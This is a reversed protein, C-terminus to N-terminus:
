SWFFAIDALSRVSAAFPVVALLKQCEGVAQLPVSLLDIGESLPM